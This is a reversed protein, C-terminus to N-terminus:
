CWTPAPLDEILEAPVKCGFAAHIKEHKDLMNWADVADVFHHFNKVYVGNYFMIWQDKQPIDSLHIDRKSGQVSPAM